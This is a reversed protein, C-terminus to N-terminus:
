KVGRGDDPLGLKLKPLDPQKPKLVSPPIPPPAFEPPPPTPLDQIRTKAAERSPLQLDLPLKKEICTWNVCRCRPDRMGPPCFLMQASTCLPAPPCEVRNRQATAPTEQVALGGAIMVAYAFRRM